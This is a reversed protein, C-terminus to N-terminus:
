EEDDEEDEDATEDDEDPEIYDYPPIFDPDKEKMERWERIKKYREFEAPKLDLECIIGNKVVESLIENEREPTELAPNNTFKENTLKEWQEILCSRCPLYVMKGCTPCRHPKEKENIPQQILYQLIERSSLSQKQLEIKRAIHMLRRVMNRSRGFKRVTEAQSKGTRIYQIIELEENKSIM